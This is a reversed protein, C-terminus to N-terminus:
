PSDEERGFMLRYLRVSIEWVNEAPVFGDEVQSVHRYRLEVEVPIGQRRDGAWGTSAYRAAFGIWRATYETGVELDSPVFPAGEPVPDLPAYSDMGRQRLLFLFSFTINRTFNLRPVVALTLVDGPDWSVRATYAGRQIPSTRSTILRELEAELQINYSAFLSLWFRSGVGVDLSSRLELDPQGDGAGADMLRGAVPPSGTAFRWLADVRARIPFLPRTGERRRRFTNLPQVSIGAEIDGFKIGTSRRQPPEIGFEPGSSLAVATEEDIPQALSLEPLELEFGQFGSRLQEYFNTLATGSSGSASPVYSLDRLEALGLEVARSDALLSEAEAQADPSLTDAAVMSELAVIGASLGTFFADPDGAFATSSSGANAALTDLQAGVYSKAKVIPVVAFVALWRTAALSLSIPARTREFLVDYSLPGLSSPEPDALGLTPFLDALAVDLSDLAPVLRSDLAVAFMQTLPQLSGDPLYREGVSVNRGTFGAQLESPRPFQADVWQADLRAPVLFVAALALAGYRQRAGSGRRRGM